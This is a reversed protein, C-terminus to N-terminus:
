LQHRQLSKPQQRETSGKGRLVAGGTCDVLEFYKKQM